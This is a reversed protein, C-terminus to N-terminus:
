RKKRKMIIISLSAIGKLQSFMTTTFTRKKRAPRQM